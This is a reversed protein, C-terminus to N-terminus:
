TLAEAVEQARSGIPRSLTLSGWSPDDGDGDRGMYPARHLAGWTPAGPLAGWTPRGLYPAGPLAAAAASRPRSTSRNPATFLSLPLPGASALRSRRITEM